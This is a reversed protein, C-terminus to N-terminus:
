SYKWRYVWFERPQSLDYTKDFYAFMLEPSKFGDLKSLEEISVITLDGGIEKQLGYGWLNKIMEIKFVETIEVNGLHKNFYGIYGGKLDKAYYNKEGYYESVTPQVYRFKCNKCRIGDINHLREMGIGCKACFVFYYSRQNWMLKVKDGVKFRAPKYEGYKSMDKAMAEGDYMKVLRITQTKSKDLLAPLIETATFNLVKM